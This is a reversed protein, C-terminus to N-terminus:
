AFCHAIGRRPTRTWSLPGSPRYKRPQRSTPRPVKRLDDPWIGCCSLRTRAAASWRGVTPRSLWHKSAARPDPLNLVPSGTAVEWVILKREESQAQAVGVSLLRGDPSFTLNSTILHQDADLTRLEAGTVADYLHKGGQGAAALIAGDPSFALAQIHGFAQQINRAEKGTTADWLRLSSQMQPNRHSLSAEALFKSDPSLALCHSDGTTGEFSRLEQGSEVDHIRIQQGRRGTEGVTALTKGDASFAASPNLSFSQNFAYVEEGTETEVLRIAGAHQEGHLLYRGNSSLFGVAPMGRDRDSKLTIHNLQKGSAVSWTRLGDVGVSIVTRGGKLFGVSTVAAQHGGQPGFEKGTSVEWVRVSQGNIGAAVIETESTFALGFCRCQPGKGVPLRKGTGPDWVQVAGELAASVLKKGDASYVLLNGTGSRSAFRRLQKGSESEVLTIAAAGAIALQKGDPSLAINAVGFQTEPVKLRRIEKSAAIDWIQIPGNGEEGANRSRIRFGGCSALLKGDKSLSVHAGHDLMAELRGIEKRTAVDWAVIPTKEGLGMDAAVFIKGDNSFHLSQQIGRGASRFQHVQNGTTVDFIVIGEGHSGAALRKGNPSFVLSEGSHGRTIFRRVEKGTAADLLIISDWRHFAAIRKGDPSLAISHTHQAVRFLGTGFRMLAGAPLAEDTSDAPQDARLPAAAPM